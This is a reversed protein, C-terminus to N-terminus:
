KKIEDIAKHLTDIIKNKTKQLLNEENEDITFLMKGDLEEVTITDGVIVDTPEMINAVIKGNWLFSVKVMKKSLFAFKISNYKIFTQDDKTVFPSDEFNVFGNLLTKKVYETLQASM